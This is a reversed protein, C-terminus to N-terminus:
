CADNSLTYVSPGSVYVAECEVVSYKEGVQIQVDEVNREDKEM